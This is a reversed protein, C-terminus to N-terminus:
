PPTSFMDFKEKPSKACIGMLYALSAKPTQMLAPMTDYAALASTTYATAASMYRKIPFIYEFMLRTDDNQMLRNVVKNQNNKYTTKFLDGNIDWCSSSFDIYEEYSSVPVSFIDTDLANRQDDPPNWFMLYSREEESLFKLESSNALTRLFHEKSLYPINAVLPM